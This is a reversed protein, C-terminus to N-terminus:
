PTRRPQLAVVASIKMVESLHKKPDTKTKKISKEVEKEYSSEYARKSTQAGVGPGFSSTPSVAMRAMRKWSGGIPNKLKTSPATSVSPAGTPGLSPPGSHISGDHALQDTSLVTGAKSMRNSDTDQYPLKAIDPIGRQNFGLERDIAELQETFTLSHTVGQKVPMINPSAQVPGTNKMETLGDVKGPTGKSNHRTSMHPTRGAKSPSTGSDSRQFPHNFFRETEM